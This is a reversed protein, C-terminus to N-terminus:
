IDNKVGAEWLNNALWLYSEAIHYNEEAAKRLKVYLEETASDLINDLESLTEFCLIGESNFTNGIDPDGWYIPITGTRFCDIIKESFYGRVRCNEVIVSFRYDKLWNIKPDMPPSQKVNQIKEGYQNKIQHRLKHGKTYTKSSMLFSVDKCKDYLQQEDDTLFTSGFPYYHFNPYRYCLDKDWSYVKHVDHRLSIAEAYAHPIIDETEILWLIKKSSPIKSAKDIYLDTIILSGLDETFVTPLSAQKIPFSLNAVLKEFTCSSDLLYIM